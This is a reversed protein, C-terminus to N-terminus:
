AREAMVVLRRRPNAGIAALHRVRHAAGGYLTALYGAPFPYAHQRALRGSHFAAEQQNQSM